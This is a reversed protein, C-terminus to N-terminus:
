NSQLRHNTASLKGSHALRQRALELVQYTRIGDQQLAAPDIELHSTLATRSTSLGWVHLEEM